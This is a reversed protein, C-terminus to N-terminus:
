VLQQQPQTTTSLNYLKDVFAGAKEVPTMYNLAQHPRENNYWSILDPLEKKLERINNYNHLYIGEHKLTRWLREIYANDNSRGKGTMSIKVGYDRLGEVWEQSTFQSGQDSNIIEPVGYKLIASSLVELCAFVCLDNSLRWSVVMRSYVDILAILYVFGKDVRLYTIDIQYVQKPREVKLGRLLYPYVMEGHNRKSTNPGPYIAKLGMLQMLRQVKKKNVLVEKRRLMATIRRYGYIPYSEYLEMIEQCLESDNIKAQSLYYLRSRSVKLLECQRRISM